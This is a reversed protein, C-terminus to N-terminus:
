KRWCSSRKMYIQKIYLVYV